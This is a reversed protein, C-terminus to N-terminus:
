AFFSLSLVAGFKAFCFFFLGQTEFSSTRSGMVDLSARCVGLGSVCILYGVPNGLLASVLIEHKVFVNIM